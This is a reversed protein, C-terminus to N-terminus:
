ETKAPSENDEQQHKRGGVVHLGKRDKAEGNAGDQVADVPKYLHLKRIYDAVADGVLRNLSSSNKEAAARISTSSVSENVDALLHITSGKVVLTGEAEQKLFPRIADQPLRLEKPLAKAVDALSYGPRNAIIFECERLLDVPNRWKGIEAFADMGIIFFLRDKKKLRYRLRRLTDISYSADAGSRQIVDPSELLSPVFRPDGATALAIMTYRHGFSTIPQLQKHPPIYAPVFHVTKLNFREAAARAVALHGRHVPDFTGGFIAVNM